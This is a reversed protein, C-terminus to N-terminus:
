KPPLKLAPLLAEAEMNTADPINAEVWAAADECSSFTCYSEHGRIIVNVPRTGDSSESKARLPTLFGKHGLLICRCKHKCYSGDDNLKVQYLLRLPIVKSGQLGRVELEGSSVNHEIIDYKDFASTEGM